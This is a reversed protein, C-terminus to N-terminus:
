KFYLVKSEAPFGLVSEITIDIQKQLDAILVELKDQYLEPNIALVINGFGNQNREVSIWHYSVFLKKLHAQIQYSSPSEKSVDRTVKLKM